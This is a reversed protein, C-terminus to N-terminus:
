ATPQYEQLREDIAAFAAQLAAQPTRDAVTVNVLDFGAVDVQVRVAAQGDPDDLPQLIAHAWRLRDAYESLSRWALTDALWVIEDRWVRPDGLHALTVSHTDIASTM